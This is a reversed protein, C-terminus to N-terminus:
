VNDPSSPEPKKAANGLQYLDDWFREIRGAKELRILAFFISNWSRGPLLLHLQDTNYEDGEKFVALVDLDKKKM